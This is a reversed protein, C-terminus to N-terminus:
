DTLIQTLPHRVEMYEMCLMTPLCAGYFQVINSDFSVKRLIAAEKHMQYLVQESVIQCNLRKIAVETTGQRIAKYM